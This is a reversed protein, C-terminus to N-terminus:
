ADRKNSDIACHFGYKLRSLWRKAKNTNTALLESALVPVIDGIMAVSDFCLTVRIMM